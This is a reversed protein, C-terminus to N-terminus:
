ACAGIANALAVARADGILDPGMRNMVYAAGIGADPDAFGFSGGWGTHGYADPNPGFVGTTNRAVGHAWHAEFGLLQDKRRSRVVTMRAITPPKMLTIGDLGGGNALAGFVLVIEARKTAAVSGHADTRRATVRYELMPASM